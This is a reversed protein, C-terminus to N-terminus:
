FSRNALIAKLLNIRFALRKLLSNKSKSSTFSANGSHRRYSVLKKDLFFPSFHREGLLGIWSDHMPINKPFPLSLELLKRSFGMCCGIYSNKLLNRWFGPASNNLAFFSPFLESGSEDILNCDSIVLDYENILPILIEMKRPHWIDDQDSLFIYNGRANKLANEFNLTPSKFMGSNLIKIRPDNYSFVIELTRDTSGDDSLVIEDYPTLQVLISDLQEGIYKEGNYTALCISARIM